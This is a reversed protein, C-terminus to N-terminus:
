PMASPEKSPLHITTSLDPATQLRPEMDLERPEGFFSGALRPQHLAGAPEAKLMAMELCFLPEQKM